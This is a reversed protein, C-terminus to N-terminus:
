NCRSKLFRFYLGLWGVIFLVYNIKSATERTVKIGLIYQLLPRFFEPGGSATAEKPNWNGRLIAEIRTLFCQGDYDNWDLITLPVILLGIGLYADPIFFVGFIAVVVYIVHIWYVLDALVLKIMM